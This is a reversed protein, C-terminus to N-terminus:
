KLRDRLQQVDVFTVVVGPAPTTAWSSNRGTLVGLASDFQTRLELIHQAKVKLGPVMSDTYTGPGQGALTRLADVATRLQNFHAAQIPTGAMLRDDSYVVTVAIDPFSDASTGASNKSRVRYVYAHNAIVTNDTYSAANPTGVLDWTLVQPSYRRYVEYSTAGNVGYWTLSVQTPSSTRAQLGVPTSPLQVTGTTTFVQDTGFVTAGQGYVYRARWHYVTGPNLGSWDAYAGPYNGAVTVDGSISLIEYATTWGLDFYLTGTTGNTSLSTTTRATNDTIMSAAGAPYSITPLASGSAGVIYSVQPTSFPNFWGDATDIRAQLTAPGPVSTSVPVYIDVNGGHLNPWVGLDYGLAGSLSYGLQPSQSCSAPTEVGNKLCHVPNTASIALSTNAPLILWPQVSASQCAAPNGVFVHTYYIDGAKPTSTNPDGYYGVFAATIFGTSFGGGLQLCDYDITNVLAGNNYGLANPEIPLKHGLKMKASLQGFAATTAAFCCFLVLSRLLSRM